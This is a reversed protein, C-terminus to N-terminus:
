LSRRHEHNRTSVFHKLPALSCFTALLRQVQGARTKHSSLAAPSSFCLRLEHRKSAFSARCDSLCRMCPPMSHTQKQERIGRSVLRRGADTTTHSQVLSCALSEPDSVRDAARTSKRSGLHIRSSRGSERGQIRSDLSPRCSIM